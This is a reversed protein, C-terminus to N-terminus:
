MVFTLNVSSRLIAPSFIGQSTLKGLTKIHVDIEPLPLPLIKDALLNSNQAGPFHHVHFVMISLLDLHLLPVSSLYCAHHSTCGRELLAKKQKLFSQFITM